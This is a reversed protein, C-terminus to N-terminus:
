ILKNRLTLNQFTSHLNKRIKNFLFLLASLKKKEVKPNDRTKVSVKIEKFHLERAYDKNIKRIRALKQIYVLYSVIPFGPFCLMSPIVRIDRFNINGFYSPFIYRPLIYRHYAHISYKVCTSIKSTCVTWPFLKWVFNSFFTM